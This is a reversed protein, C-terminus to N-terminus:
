GDAYAEAFRAEIRAALEPDTSAAEGIAIYEDVTIGEAADVVELIAADAAQVIAMQEAEDTTAELQALYGQRTEAVALAAEIFADIMSDDAVVQTGDMQVQAKAQGAIIPSVALATVFATTTLLRNLTM